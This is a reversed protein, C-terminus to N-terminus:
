LVNETPKLTPMIVGSEDVVALTRVEPTQMEMVIAPIFALALLLVPLLITTFIFSKKSVRELYERRVVLMIKNSMVIM